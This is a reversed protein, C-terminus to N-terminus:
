KKAEQEVYDFGTAKYSPADLVWGNIYIRACGYNKFYNEFLSHLDSFYQDLLAVTLENPLQSSDVVSVDRETTDDEDPSAIVIHFIVPKSLEKSKSKLYNMSAPGILRHNSELPFGSEQEMASATCTFNLLFVVLLLQGLKKM